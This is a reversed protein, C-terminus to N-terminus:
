YQYSVNIQTGPTPPTDFVVKDGIVKWTIAQNPTFSVTVSGAVPTRSLTVSNTLTRVSEGITKLTVSYDPACVSETIGSTLGVAQSIYNGYFGFGGAQGLQQALCASDGPKIVIGYVKFAKGSPWISNFKNVLDQPRSALSAPSNSGEDEDSLIVIALDSDTRFFTNNDTMRKDMATMSARLPEEFGAPCTGLFSCNPTEPREITNKFVQLFNPTVPTLIRQTLGSLQLLSGCIGYTGASCDTTTIGIQWDIGQLEESFSSFKSGLANQETEMSASNDDVFLIDIKGFSADAVFTENGPSTARVYVATAQGVNGAADTQSALVNKNGIMATFQINASFIGGTCAASATSLLDGSIQVTIGAECTGSLTVTPPVNSGNVPAAIALVPATTDRNFDRQVQGINGAADTQSARVTKLGDGNSVTVSTSYAGASCATTTASALGAGDLTVTLGSECAGQITFNTPLYSNAAPSAITIAPGLSDKVFNRNASGTNGAADTQTAIVNKVGEGNSFVINAAFASGTCAVSQTGSMGSGSLNVNLGSECTGTVSVGTASVTNEAPNVFAVVPATSDKIYNGTVQASNGAGDTQSVIVQKAGDGASTTLTASYTGSNCPSNGASSIGTGSFSVPTGSECVGSIVFSNSVYSGNVPSTITLNPATTDRLFNRNASGTNGVADTQSVTVAKTGDGSSPTLNVSFAGAVCATTTNASIGAGSVSVTLGTECTGQLNFTNALYSNAVPLTITLAPGTTDRVFNRNDSGSNGAADTQTATINKVGDGSNFVVNATFANAACPVTVTSAAGSGAVLVNLGSECTGSITLGNQAVTNAAPNVIAVVPATTDKILNLNDNSVNGAGDTQSASISKSGDGASLTLSASFSGANCAVNSPATIGTGTISVNFGTECVGSVSVTNQVFSGNAPSTFGLVPATSDRVFTRSATGTNGAADTQSISIQKNGDGATVTVSGTFTGSNCNATTPSASGSGSIQVMLGTECTGQLSFTVPVFSGANPNTFTLVPATTDRLFNRNDSGSNGVSDTQTAVINKTGDGESFVIAASFAGSNCATTVNNSIGAGSLVVNFGSECTGSVTLGNQALTNIAPATIIVNPATTDRVFNRSATASNGALDSQTATIAKVGDGSSLNLNASFSNGSCAVTAPTTIGAGSLSVSTGSECTGTVNVSNQFVSNAAPSVFTLNPPTSDRLFARSATGTNGAADTQSISVNKSGDGGTANLTATFTGGACAATTNASIGSGSIQVQLGSECTGQITFSVPIFSNAAPQTFALVPAVTDVQFSRQTQASNGVADSQSAILTKVGQGSSINATLSWNGNNCNVNQAANLVNGSLNVPTGTECSGTFTSTASIYSNANPTNITLTPPTTDKMFNRNDQGVNGATDVQHVAVNKVGDAGALTFAASFSGNNCNASQGTPAQPTGFRVTLGNECIGSINLSNAGATMAAPANIRVVPATQDITYTTDSAGQNGAADVQSVQVDKIGDGNQLSISAEYRGNVCSATVPSSMGPGSILVDLGTECTGSIQSVQTNLSQANPNVEITPQPPTADKLYCLKDVMEGGSTNQSVTIDKLGDVGNLTVQAAFNSNQCNVSQTTGTSDTIVVSVGEVCTGSITVVGPVVSEPKPYLIVPGPTSQYRASSSPPECSAFVEASTVRTKDCASLLSVLGPLVFFSYAFKNFHSTQLFQRVRLQVMFGGLDYAKPCQLDPETVIILKKFLSDNFIV